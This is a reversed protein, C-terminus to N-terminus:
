AIGCRNNDNCDYSDDSDNKSKHNNHTAYSATSIFQGEFVFFSTFFDFYLIHSYEPMDIGTSVPIFPFKVALEMTLILVRVDRYIVATGFKPVATIKKIFTSQTWRM